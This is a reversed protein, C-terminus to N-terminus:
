KKLTLVWYLYRAAAVPAGLRRGRKSSGRRGDRQEPSSKNEKAELPDADVRRMPEADHRGAL